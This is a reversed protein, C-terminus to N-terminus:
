AAAPTLASAPARATRRKTDRQERETGLYPERTGMVHDFFPHTVCWNANQNPGM